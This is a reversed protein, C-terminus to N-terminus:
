VGFISILLRVKSVIKVLDKGIEKEGLYVFNPFIPDVVIRFLFFFMDCPVVDRVKEM